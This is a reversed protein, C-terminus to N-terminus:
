PRASRLLLSGFPLRRAIMVMEPPAPMRIVSSIMARPMCIACSAGAVTALSFSNTGEYPETPLGTSTVAAIKLSRVSILRVSCAILSSGPTSQMAIILAESCPSIACFTAASIM